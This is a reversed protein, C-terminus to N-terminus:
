RNTGDGVVRANCDDSVGSIESLERLVYGTGTHVGVLAERVARDEIDHLEIDGLRDLLIEQAAYLNQLDMVSTWVSALTNSLASSNDQREGM